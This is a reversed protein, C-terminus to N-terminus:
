SLYSILLYLTNHSPYLKLLLTQHFLQNPSFKPYDFDMQFAM